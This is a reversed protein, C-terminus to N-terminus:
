MPSQPVFRALGAGRKMASNRTLAERTFTTRMARTTTFGTWSRKCTSGPMPTPSRVPVPIM